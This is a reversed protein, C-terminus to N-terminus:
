QPRFLFALLDAMEQLTIQSELGEPMISKGTSTLEAIDERLVTEGAGGARRITISTPTEVTIVGTTVRGNKLAVVYEFFNPSVERNPDLVHLLVEEPTRHRITELAPGIDNGENGASHCNLCVRRAVLRGREPDAALALAPQYRKLVEGRAGAAERTFVALARSRISENPNRLM